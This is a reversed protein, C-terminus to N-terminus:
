NAPRIVRVVSNGAEAFYINGAADVAMGQPNFIKALPAPGGDGSYGQEGTGAITEIREDEMTIRRIRNNGSDSFVISGDKAIVIGKPALMTAENAKGGDGSFGEVGTGAITSIRGDAIRRIVSNNDTIFIVGDGSVAIGNPQSLKAATAAGGNGSYGAQGPTGAITTIEGSISIKRIVHNQTDAFYLNGAVDTALGGPVNILAETAPGNDGTHGQDLDGAITSIVGSANVKRLVNNGADSIFINGNADATVWLPVNLHASIAPGGDGSYQKPDIVNWGLFTGAVTSIVNSTNIRRIVNAAGDSIYMNGAADISLGTIYGLRAADAPGGDGDYGFTTGAFTDISADFAPNVGPESDDGTCSLVLIALLLTSAKTKM